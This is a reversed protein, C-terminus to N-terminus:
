TDGAGLTRENDALARKYQPIADTLRCAQQYCAALYSRAALTDPHDPGQTRIRDALTREYQPIADRFRGASRYAFALNARAAIALPHEAGQIRIRDALTHEYHPIADRLRGAARFASALSARAAITDAHYPGHRREQETVARQYYAIAERPTKGPPPVTVPRPLDATLAALEACTRSALAQGVRLDLEDRDLRGAVFAAKLVDIVQDRDAHSARLDPHGGAGAATEDGPGAM